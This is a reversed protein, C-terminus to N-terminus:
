KYQMIKLNDNNAPHSTANPMVNRRKLCNRLASSKYKRNFIFIRAFPLLSSVLFSAIAHFPQQCSTKNTINLKGNM